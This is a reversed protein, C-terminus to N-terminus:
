RKRISQIPVDAGLPTTRVRANGSSLKATEAAISKRLEQTPNVVEGDIRRLLDLLLQGSIPDFTVGELQAVISKGSLTLRITALPDVIHLKKRLAACVERLRKLKLHRGRRLASLGGALEIATRVTVLDKFSFRAWRRSSTPSSATGSAIILVQRLQHYDIGKLGLIRAAEGPYFYGTRGRLVRARPERKRHEHIKPPM